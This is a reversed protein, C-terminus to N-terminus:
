AEKSLSPFVRVHGLPPAPAALDPACGEALATLIRLPGGHTVLICAKGRAAVDAWLASVRALLAAGSEGGPPAFGLLDDAWADLAARPIEDWPRGEWAGFDMELLRADRVPPAQAWAAAIAEALQACRRLPSTLIMAGRLPGLATVIPPIDHGPETLPLDLRGYCRGAGGRVAPHRILALPWTM